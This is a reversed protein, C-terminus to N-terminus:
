AFVAGGAGGRCTHEIPTQGHCRRCVAAAGAQRGGMQTANRNLTRGLSLTQRHLLPEGFCLDDAEFSHRGSWFSKWVPDIWSKINATIM